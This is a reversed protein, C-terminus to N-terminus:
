LKSEFNLLAEDSLKEWEEFETRVQLDYKKQRLIADKFLHIIKLLNTVQEDSLDKIEDLITDVYKSSTPM